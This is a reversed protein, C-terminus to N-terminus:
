KDNLYPNKQRLFRLKTCNINLLTYFIYIRKIIYVKERQNGIMTTSSFTTDIVQQFNAM